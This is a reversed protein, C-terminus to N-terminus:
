FCRSRRRDALRQRYARDAALCDDVTMMRRRPAWALFATRYKPALTEVDKKEAGNLDELDPFLDKLNTLMGEEQHTTFGQGRDVAAKLINARHVVPDIIKAKEAPSQTAQALSAFILTTMAATFLLGTFSRPQKRQFAQKRMMTQTFMQSILFKTTAQLLKTTVRFILTDPFHHPKSFFSTEM